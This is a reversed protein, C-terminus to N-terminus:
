QSSGLLILYPSSAAYESRDFDGYVAVHVLGSAKFEDLYEQPEVLNHKVQISLREVQGNPLLHDYHWYITFHQTTRQWASSIQVPEGDLPHSIIEEVEPDARTPLRRLWAPNPLSVAFLGGPALHRKVCQLTSLRQYSQLLSFTNCPLTILSFVTNLHFATMDALVLHMAPRLNPTINQGLVALMAPDKDLGIVKYGAQLLPILIRGTGCGLELIPDGQQHALERWFHLDENDLTHHAHYLRPFALKDSAPQPVNRRPFHRNAM